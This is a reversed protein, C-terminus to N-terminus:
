TTVQFLLPSSPFIIMTKYIISLFHLFHGHFHFLLAIYQLIERCFFVKIGVGGGGLIPRPLDTATAVERVTAVATMGTGALSM